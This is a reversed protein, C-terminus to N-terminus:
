RTTRFKTVLLGDLSSLSVVNGCEDIVEGQKVIIEKGCNYYVEDGNMLTRKYEPNVVTNGIVPVKVGAESYFTLRDVLDSHSVLRMGRGESM